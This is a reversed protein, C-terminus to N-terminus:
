KLCKREALVKSTAVHHGNRYRKRPLPKKKPGRPHKRYRKLVMKAALEKLLQALQQESLSGFVQWQDAPIAVMMGEYTERIEGTLYYASLQSAKEEGHAARLAAKLIAVANSVLLGVCFAFLAAKPYALTQIECSLTREVELFLGEITWRRRYLDAVQAAKATKVPLNTLVHIETDGDTTPQDLEVTIRRVVWSGDEGDGLRLKQEFVKGTQCRGKAQRQGLLEGRVTGHQRIVFCAGRLAIGRLFKLTCFNRDAIWLDKPQVLPLVEPLLSREQAQGDETLLIDSVTGTPQDLIALGKGPLPAAWTTRLEAIRHQTAELHNGDIIKTHYDALWPAQTTGLAAMLPAARRASDRVLAASVALEMHQLKDYVATDSVPIRDSMAQYAAHVSPKRGLVVQAMLDVATSFLLDKTYQRQATQEFLADLRQPDLLRELIGRAMVCLPKQEVFPRFLDNLIVTSVKRSYM